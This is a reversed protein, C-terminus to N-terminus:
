YLLFVNTQQHFPITAPQYKSTTPKKALLWCGAVLWSLNDKESLGNVKCNM